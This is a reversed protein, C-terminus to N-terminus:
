TRTAACRAIRALVTNKFNFILFTDIGVIKLTILEFTVSVNTSNHVRM